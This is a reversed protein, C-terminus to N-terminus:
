SNPLWLAIGPLLCLLLVTVLMAGIFPLTGVAIQRLTVNGGLGQLIFLNMGVPPTILGIEAMIVLIIGFWIPDFGFQQSLPFIVPLTLVLMSISDLFMGLVLFIALIIALVVWRNLDADLVTSMLRESVRLFDFGFTLINAGVVILLIFSTVLVTEAIAERLATVTMRGRLLCAILALIAGLAGIESPTAVGGYLSFIIMFVLGIVIGTDILSDRNLPLHRSKPLMPAAKRDLTAWLAILLSFAGVMLIGPMIGAMFLGTIPVGVTIGYIILPVSPPILIGLTGGAAITGYALRPDYGRETMEPCAVKGMTAATAVSSGSVASFIACGAIGAHALGGPLRALLRAAVAFLERSLGSRVLLAGMLVYMPVATLAFSNVSNWAREAITAPFPVPTVFYIACIGCFSLAFAIRIGLALAGIILIALAAIMWDFGSMRALVLGISGLAVLLAVGIFVRFGSAVAAGTLVSAALALSGYDFRTGPILPPRQGMAILLGATAAFLLYVVAMRRRPGAQEITVLMAAALALLGTAVSLKPIWAPTLLLSFLRSGTRFDSIVLLCAQWAAIAVVLLAIWEGVLSLVRRHDASLRALVVDVRVHGGALHTHAAGFFVAAALAYTSLETAWITPSNFGYRAIVDYTTALAMFTIGLGALIAFGGSVGTIMRAPLSKPGANEGDYSSAATM